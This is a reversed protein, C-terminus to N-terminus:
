RSPCLRDRRWREESYGRKVAHAWLGRGRAPRRWGRPPRMAGRAPGERPSGPCAAVSGTPCKQAAAGTCKQAATSVMRIYLLLADGVDQPLPLAVSRKSKGCVRIQARNWDIDSLQLHYVDGARLGLRALLLLIARDRIGGPKDSQCCEIVHEVDEMPIYRPLTALRWAPPMPVAALIGPSCAGTSVLFRLYMRMSRALSKAHTQSVHAFRQLLAQCIAGASYNNHDKGLNKLLSSVELDYRRITRAKTGRHRELWTCFEPLHREVRPNDGSVVNPTVGNEVLFKVFKSLIYARIKAGSLSSPIRVYKPCLCDHRLFHEIIETNVANLPIRDRHLWLLFHWSSM